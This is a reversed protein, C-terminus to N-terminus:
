AVRAVLHFRRTSAGRRVAVQAQALALGLILSLGIFSLLVSMVLAWGATALTFGVLVLIIRWFVGTGESRESTM